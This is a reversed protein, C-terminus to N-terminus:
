VMQAGWCPQTTRCVFNDHLFHHNFGKLFNPVNWIAHIAYKSICVFGWWKQHLFHHCVMLNPAWIKPFSRNFLPQGCTCVLDVLNSGLSTHTEPDPHIYLAWCSPPHNPPKEPQLKRWAKASSCIRDTDIICLYNKDMALEWFPWWTDVAGESCHSPRKPARYIVLVSPWCQFRLLPKPLKYMSNEDIRQIEM